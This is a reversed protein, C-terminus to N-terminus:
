AGGPSQDTPLRLEVVTGPSGDPPEFMDITGHLDSTVLARVINEVEGPRQQLCEVFVEPTFPSPVTGSNPRVEPIFALVSILTPFM